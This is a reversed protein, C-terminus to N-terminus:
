KVSAELDQECGIRFGFSYKVIISKVKTWKIGTSQDSVLATEM